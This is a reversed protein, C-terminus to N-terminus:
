CASFVEGTSIKQSAGAPRKSFPPCCTSWPSWRTAPPQPAAKVSAPPAEAVPEAKAPEVAKAAGAEITLLLDGPKIEQGEKVHVEVISGATPCPIEAVAKDTEVELVPAEAAITDGAKVLVKAVTALTVNEGLEPLRFETAM